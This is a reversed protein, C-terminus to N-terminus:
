DSRFPNFNFNDSQDFELRWNEIELTVNAKLEYLSNDEKVTLRSTKINL